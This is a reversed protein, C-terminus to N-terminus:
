PLSQPIRVVRFMGPCDHSHKSGALANNAADRADPADSRWTVVAFVLKCLCFQYRCCRIMGPASRKSLFPLIGLLIEKVALFPRALVHARGPHPDRAHANCLFVQLIDIVQIM